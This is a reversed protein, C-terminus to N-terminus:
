APITSILADLEGRAHIRELADVVVPDFSSGAGKRVEAMAQAETWADDKYPRRSLLADFVDAVAVIRCVLPIDEGSLGDPYGEGDWREHHHHAVESAQALSPETALIARGLTTHTRILTLEEHTLPGQKQLIYDPIGIKGVDHLCAARGYEEVTVPSEGLERAIRRTYEAIRRIHMGTTKDKYEALLALMEVTNDYAERLSNHLGFNELAAASQDAMIQILARDADNLADDSELYVFGLLRREHRLAVVIAGARLQQPLEESLVANTCCHLISNLRDPAAVAPALDGAGARITFKDGERTTLLGDLTSILGTHTLRCLAIIQLLVGEFFGELTEQRLEYFQPTAALVQELGMRNLEIIQLDRYSKLATRLATYLKQATLETKDKYDDIDFHDIVYREPAMGPQGTRIIIRMLANGLDERITRVLQLGADDTEMVVDILAVAVDPHEALRARAEDASRAHVFQLGRGAFTFGRLNLETLQGVDPEDDVVMVKWAQRAAPTESWLSSAPRKRILKM